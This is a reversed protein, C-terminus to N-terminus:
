ASMSRGVDHGSRSGTCRAAASPFLIEHAINFNHAKKGQCRSSLTKDCRRASFCRFIAVQMESEEHRVREWPFAMKEPSRSSTRHATEFRVSIQGGFSVCALQMCACTIFKCTLHLWFHMRKRFGGPPSCPLAPNVPRSHRCKFALPM